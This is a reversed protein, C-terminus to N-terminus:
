NGKVQIAGFGAWPQPSNQRTPPPRRILIRTALLDQYKAPNFYVVRYVRTNKAIEVTSSGEKLELMLEILFGEQPYILSLEVPEGYSSPTIEPWVLEPEGLLAFVDKIKLSNVTLISIATVIENEFYATGSIDRAPPKFFWSISEVEEGSLPLDTNISQEDVGQMQWLADSVATFTTEGPQIDNWCPPACATSTLVTSPQYIVDRLVFLFILVIAVFLLLALVTLWFNKM